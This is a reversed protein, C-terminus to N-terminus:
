TGHTKSAPLMVRTRPASDDHDEAEESAKSPAETGPLQELPIRFGESSEARQKAANKPMLGAIPLLIAEQKLPRDVLAKPSGALAFVVPERPSRAILRHQPRKALKGTVKKRSSGRYSAKGKTAAPVRFSLDQSDQCSSGRVAVELLGTKVPYVTRRSM